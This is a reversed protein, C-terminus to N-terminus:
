GDWPHRWPARYDRKIRAALDPDGVVQEAAPDWRLTRGGEYAVMALNVATTTFHGDEPLCVAPRRQRVAEIFDRAHALQMDEQVERVEPRAGRENALTWWKNQGVFLSAKEGYFTVGINTEPYLEAAGWLRHRWTVPTGDFDFHATLTDPTTIRGVYAHIGGVATVSRPSGTGLVWRCVDIFHIGWDVLLGNGSAKELRWHGHGTQASYPILPGPGCWADWDLTNPPSVPTPDALAARYNISADVNVVRGIHGGRVHDRVDHFLRSSRRQFGIQVPVGTRQAAAVMARSERVDYALPKECYIALGRECAAIFQLAHWHPPTGIVVADLGEMELLKEYEKFLAPKEPQREGIAAVAKELQASDVDCLAVCEAGGAEILKRMVLVGYWGTGIVGVKLPPPAGVAARAGTWTGLVAAGLAANRIFSRRPLSPM